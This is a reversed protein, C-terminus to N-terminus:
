IQKSKKTKKFQIVKAVGFIGLYLLPNKALDAINDSLEQQGNRDLVELATSVSSVLAMNFTGVIASTKLALKVNDKTTAQKNVVKNELVAMSSGLSLATLASGSKSVSQRADEPRSEQWLKFTEPFQTLSLATITGVIAQETLSVGGTIAGTALRDIISSSIPGSTGFNEHATVGVLGLLAENAPSWEFAIGTISAGFLAYKKASFKGLEKAGSKLIETTRKNPEM